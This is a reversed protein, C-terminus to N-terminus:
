DEFMWGGNLYDFDPNSKNINFTNTPADCGDQTEAQPVDQGDVQLTTPETFLYYIMHGFGTGSANRTQFRYLYKNDMLEKLGSRIATRGEGTATCLGRENFNWGEPLALMFILLFRAKASLDKNFIVENPIMTFNNRPNTPTRLINSQAQKM